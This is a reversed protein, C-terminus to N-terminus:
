QNNKVTGFWKKEKKYLPWKTLKYNLVGGSSCGWNVLFRSEGTIEYVRKFVCWDIYDTLGRWGPLVKRTMYKYENVGADTNWDPKMSMVAYGVCRGSMYFALALEDVVGSAVKAAVTKDIGAHENYGYKAGGKDLHRWEEVMRTVDNVNNSDLVVASVKGCYKNRLERHNRYESGPMTEFMEKSDIVSVVQTLPRCKVGSMPADLYMYSVQKFSMLEGAPVPDFVVVKSCDKTKYFGLYSVGECLSGCKGMLGHVTTRDVYKSIYSM